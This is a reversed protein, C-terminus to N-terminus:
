ADICGIVWAGMHTVRVAEAKLRALTTALLVPDDTVVQEEDVGSTVSEVAIGADLFMKRRWVSGSALVIQPHTGM